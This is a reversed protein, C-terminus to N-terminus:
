ENEEEKKDNILLKEKKEHSTGKGLIFAWITIFIFMIAAVTINSYYWEKSYTTALVDLYYDDLYIPALLDFLVVFAYLMTTIGFLYYFLSKM